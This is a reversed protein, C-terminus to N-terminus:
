GFHIKYKFSMRHVTLRSSAMFVCMRVPSSHLMCVACQRVRSPPNGLKLFVSRGRSFSGLLWHFFFRHYTWMSGILFYCCVQPCPGFVNVVTVSSETRGLSAVHVTILALPKVREAETYDGLWRKITSWLTNLNGTDTHPCTLTSLESQCTKEM